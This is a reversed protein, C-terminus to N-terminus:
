TEGESVSDGCDGSALHARFCEKHDEFSDRIDLSYVESSTEVDGVSASEAESASEKREIQKLHRSRACAAWARKIFWVLFM